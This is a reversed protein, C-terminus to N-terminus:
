RKDRPRPDTGAIIENGEGWQDNETVKADRSVDIKNNKGKQSNGSIVTGSTPANADLRTKIGKSNAEFVFTRLQRRYFVLIVLIILAIGLPVIVKADM